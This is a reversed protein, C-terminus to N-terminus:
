CHSGNQETPLCAYFLAINIILLIFHNCHLLMRNVKRKLWISIKSPYCYLCAESRERSTSYLTAHNHGTQFNLWVRLMNGDHDNNAYNNASNKVQQEVMRCHQENPVAMEFFGNMWVADHTTKFGSHYSVPFFFQFLFLAASHSSTPQWTILQVTAQEVRVTWHNM